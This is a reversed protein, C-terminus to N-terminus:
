PTAAFPGQGSDQEKRDDSELRTQVPPALRGGELVVRTLILHASLNTTALPQPAQLVFHFRNTAGPPLTSAQPQDGGGIVWRSGHAVVQGDPARLFLAAKASEVAVSGRNVIELKVLAKRGWLTPSSTTIALQASILCPLWLLFVFLVCAKM